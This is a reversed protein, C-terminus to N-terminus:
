YDPSEGLNDFDRGDPDPYTRVERCRRHAKMEDALYLREMAQAADAVTDHVSVPDGKGAGNVEVYIGYKGGVAEATHRHHQVIMYTM